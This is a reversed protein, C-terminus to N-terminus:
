SRVGLSFGSARLMSRGGKPGWFTQSPGYAVAGTEDEWRTLTELSALNHWGPIPAFAVAEGRVLYTDGREDTVEM